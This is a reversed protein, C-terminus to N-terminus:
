QKKNTSFGLAAWIPCFNLFATIVFIVALVGLIIATTGNIVKTFYLVGVAGAIILRIVKDIPGINKKM